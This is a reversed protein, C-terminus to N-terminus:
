YGIFEECQKIRNGREDYEYEIKSGNSYLILVCNGMENYIYKKEKPFAICDEMQKPTEIIKVSVLKNRWINHYNYERIFGFDDKEWIKRNESDYQMLVTSKYKKDQKRKGFLNSM